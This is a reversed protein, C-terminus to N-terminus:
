FHCLVELNIVLFPVRLFLYDLQEYVDNLHHTWIAVNVVLKSNLCATIICKLANRLVVTALCDIVKSNSNM